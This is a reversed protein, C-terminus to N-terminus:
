RGASALRTVSGPGNGLPLTRGSRAMDMARVAAPTTGRRYGHLWSRNGSFTLIPHFDTFEEEALLRETRNDLVWFRDQARVLLVAHVSGAAADHGVTMYLDNAPVGAAMLAHMKAIVIDECDGASRALTEGATAWQDGSPDSDFRYSIRRNMAANILQAQQFRGLSRAPQALRTLQPAAASRSVRNWRQWYRSERVPLAVSGFVDPQGAARAIAHNASIANPKTFATSPISVVLFLSLFLYDRKRM